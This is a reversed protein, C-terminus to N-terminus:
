FLNKVGYERSHLRCTTSVGILNNQDEFINILIFINIRLMIVSINECIM